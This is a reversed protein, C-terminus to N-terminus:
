SEAAVDTGALLRECGGGFGPGKEEAVSSGANYQLQTNLFTDRKSM